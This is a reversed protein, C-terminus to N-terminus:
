ASGGEDDFMSSLDDPITIKASLASAVDDPVHRTVQVILGAIERDSIVDDVASRVNILQQQLIVGPVGMTLLESTMALHMALREAKIEHAEAM